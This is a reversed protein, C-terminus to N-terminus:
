HDGRVVGLPQFARGRDLDTERRGGQRGHGGGGYRQFSEGRRVVVREWLAFGGGEHTVMRRQGGSFVAEGDGGWGTLCELDVGGGVEEVPSLDCGGGIGGSHEADGIVLRGVANLPEILDQWALDRESPIALSDCVSLM